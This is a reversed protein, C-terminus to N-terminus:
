IFLSLIQLLFGLLLLIFGRMKFQTSSSISNRLGSVKELNTEKQQKVGVTSLIEHLFFMINKIFTQSDIWVFITGLTTFGLGLLMWIKFSTFM